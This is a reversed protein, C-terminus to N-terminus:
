QGYEAIVRFFLRDQAPLPISATTQDSNLTFLTSWNGDPTPASQILYHIADPAPRWRLQCLNTSPFYHLTLDTARDLTQASRYVRIRSSDGSIVNRFILRDARHRNKLIRQPFSDTDDPHLGSIVGLSAGNAANYVDLQDQFGNYVVIRENRTEDLVASWILGTNFPLDLAWLESYTIPDYARLDPTIIRLAGNSDKQAIALGSHCGWYESENCLTDPLPSECPLHCAYMYAVEHEDCPDLGGCHYGTRGSIVLFANDFLAFPNVHFGEGLYQIRLSDATLDIVRAYGREDSTWNMGSSYEEQYTGWAIWHAPQPPPPWAQLERVDEQSWGYSESVYYGVSWIALTQGGSLNIISLYRISIDFGAGDEYANGGWEVAVALDNDLRMLRLDQVHCSDPLIWQLPPQGIDESYYIVNDVACAFGLNQDDAWWGIDWANWTQVSISHELVMPFDAYSGTILLVCCLLTLLTTRPM